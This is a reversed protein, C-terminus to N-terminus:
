HAVTTSECITFGAVRLYDWYHPYSKSVVQPNNIRIHPLRLACPAFAMAMRHDDYTDIPEPNTVETKTGDWEMVSDGQHTVKYGLKALERELAAIRDTEKIRLSQLGTFRFPIGLMCCCVVLTQALDPQNIFDYDLRSLTCPQQSIEVCPHGQETFTHTTKVGLHDFISAVERDGQQSNSFLLPLTVQYGSSLAVIEYWYSAASWDSEVMFSTAPEYGKPSVTITREDTWHVEAGFDRMVHLTLDIYPRSIIHGELHLVLGDTLVPGIMLLASIYQSSVNGPLHLEGGKLHNNGTIRLPPFGEEGVYEVKAGLLRLADVLVSIPRHRM